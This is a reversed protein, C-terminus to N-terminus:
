AVLAQRQSSRIQWILYGLAILPASIYFYTAGLETFDFLAMPYRIGVVPIVEGASNSVAGIVWIQATNWNIAVTPTLGLPMSAILAWRRWGTHRRFAMVMAWGTLAFTVIWGILFLYQAAGKGFLHFANLERLSQTNSTLYFRVFRKASAETKVAADVVLFKDGIRYELWMRSVGNGTELNRNEASWATQVSVPETTGIMDAMHRLRDDSAEGMAPDLRQRFAAFDKAALLSITAKTLAIDDALRTESTDVALAPVTLLVTMAISAVIGFIRKSISMAAQNQDFPSATNTASRFFQNVGGM